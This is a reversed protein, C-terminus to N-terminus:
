HKKGDSFWADDDRLGSTDKGWVRAAPKIGEWEARTEGKGSLIAEVTPKPAVYDKFPGGIEDHGPYM